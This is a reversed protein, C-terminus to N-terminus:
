SGSLTRDGGGQGNIDRRQGDIAVWSSELLVYGLRTIM